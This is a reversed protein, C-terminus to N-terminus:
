HAMQHDKYSLIILNLDDNTGGMFKPIIHHSHVGIGKHEYLICSNLFDIYKSLDINKYQATIM